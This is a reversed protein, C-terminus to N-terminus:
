SATSSAWRSKYRRCALTEDRHINNTADHIDPAHDVVFNPTAASNSAVCNIGAASHVYSDSVDPLYSCSM